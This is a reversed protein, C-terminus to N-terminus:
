EDWDYKWKYSDNTNEEDYFANEKSLQRGNGSSFHVFGDDMIKKTGLSVVKLAPKIYTRM